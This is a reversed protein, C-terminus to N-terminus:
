LSWLNIIKMLDPVEYILFNEFIWFIWLKLSAFRLGELDLPIKILCKNLKILSLRVYSQAGTRRVGFLYFIMLEESMKIPLIHYLSSELWRELWSQCAVVVDRLKILFKSGWCWDIRWGFVREALRRIHNKLSEGIYCRADQLVHGGTRTNYARSTWMSCKYMAKWRTIRVEMIM